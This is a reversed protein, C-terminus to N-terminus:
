FGVVVGLTMTMIEELKEEKVVLIVRAMSFVEGWRVGKGDVKGHWNPQIVLDNM